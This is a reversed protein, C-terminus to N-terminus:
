AGRSRIRRALTLSRTAERQVLLECSERKVIRSKGRMHDSTHDIVPILLQMPQCDYLITSIVVRRLTVARRYYRFESLMDM